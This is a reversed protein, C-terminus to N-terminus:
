EILRYYVLPTIDSLEHEGTPPGDYSPSLSRDVIFFGRHRINEGTEIGVESKLRPLPDNATADEVRFLGVTVWVAFVHSRTTSNGAIKGLLRNRRHELMWYDLGQAPTLSTGARTQLVAPATSYPDPIPDFLRPTWQGGLPTIFEGPAQSSVVTDDTGDFANGVPMDLARFNRRRLLTDSVRGSAFSRFPKDDGTGMIGDPGMRSLLFMRFLEGNVQVGPKFGPYDEPFSSGSPAASTNVGPWQYLGAVSNGLITDLDEGGFLGGFSVGPSTAGSPSILLSGWAVTRSLNPPYNTPISNTLLQLTSSTVSGSAPMVEQSDVLAKFIEEDWINNLDIKGAVRSVREDAPTASTNWGGAGNMRSRCEVLEFFRYLNPLPLQDNNALLPHGARNETFWPAQRSRWIGNPRFEFDNTFRLRWEDVTGGGAVNTGICDHSGYLRVSLLELPSALQRNLFPFTEYVDLDVDSNEISFTEQGVEFGDDTLSSYPTSTGPAVETGTSTGANTLEPFGLFKGEENGFGTMGPDPDWPRRSGVWPQKRQLSKRDNRPTIEDENQGIQYSGNANELRLIDIAIYPNDTADFNAFPNRLRYLAIEVDRDAVRTRTFKLIGNMNGTIGDDYATYNNGQNNTLDAVVFSELLTSSPEGNMPDNFAGRPGVVYYGQGPISQNGTAQVPTISASPDGSGTDPDFTVFSSTGTTGDPEEPTKGAARVGLLFIPRANTDDWLVAEVPDTASAFIVSADPWPNYLEAWVWIKDRDESPNPGAGDDDYSFEHFLAIGENIVIEPLEFGFVTDNASWAGDNLNTDYDMQTMASDPDMYDVINVALQALVRSRAEEEVTPTGTAPLPHTAMWLLVYIQEAMSTREQDAVDADVGYPTLPRNLDFRRGETIADPLRNGFQLTVGFNLGTPPDSRASNYQSWTGSHARQAVADAYYRAIDEALENGTANHPSGGDAPNAYMLPNSFHNLDWSSHTFLRRMRIRGYEEPANTFDAAFLKSLLTQLRNDLATNDIDWFRLLTEIQAATIPFDRPNSAYPNFEYAEDVALNNAALPGPATTWDNLSFSIYNVFAPMVQRRNLYVSAAFDTFPEALQGSGFYDAPGQLSTVSGDLYETSLNSNDDNDSNTGDSRGARDATSPTTTRDNWKGGGDLTALLHRYLDDPDEWDPKGGSSNLLMAHRPNIETPSAGLNSVHGIIQNGTPTNLYNGATNLNIRGDLSLVKFAFLPKAYGGDPLQINAPSGLDVWVADKLGDGDTDVDLERPDDGIAGSRNVDDPIGDAASSHPWTSMTGASSNNEQDVGMVPLSTANDARRPRFLMRRGDAGSWADGGFAGANELEAILQPRHFSPQLIMGDAREAALFMNNFDPYDYDEDAGFWHWNTGDHFREPQLNEGNVQPTATRGGANTYMTLNFPYIPDWTADSLATGFTPYPSLRQIYSNVESDSILGDGDDDRPNFIGTGNYVGEYPSWGADTVDHRIEAGDGNAGTGMAGRNVSDRSGYMDRLLSHGRISSYINDTDYILQNMAYRFLVGPDDVDFRSGTRGPYQTALKFNRAGQGQVRALMAFTLGIGAFLGLMGLVVLLVVGRRDRTQAILKLMLM